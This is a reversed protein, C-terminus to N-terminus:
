VSVIFIQAILSLERFELFLVRVREIEVWESSNQVKILVSEVFEHSVRPELSHISHHNIFKNFILVILKYQKISAKFFFYFAKNIDLRM